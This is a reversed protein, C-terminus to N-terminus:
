AHIVLCSVSCEGTIAHIEPVNLPSLDVLHPHQEFEQRLQHKKRSAGCLRYIGVVGLGRSNIESVCKTVLLPINTGSAEDVVVDALHRGFLTGLHVVGSTPSACYSVELYVVGRPELKLACKCNQPSSVRSNLMDCLRITGTFCLRHRMHPDWHYIMCVLNGTGDEVAMDFTEDWDFNMAGTRIMTKSMKVHDLQLVCYLDRLSTRSSKLGHGCYIKVKMSGSRLVDNSPNNNYEPKYIAFDDIRIKMPAKVLLPLDRLYLYKATIDEGATDSQGSPKSSPCRPLTAALSETTQQLMTDVNLASEMNYIANNLM